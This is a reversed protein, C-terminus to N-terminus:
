QGGDVVGQGGDNEHLFSFCANIMRVNISLLLQCAPTIWFFPQAAGVVDTGLQNWKKENAIYLPIKEGGGYQGLHGANITAPGIVVLDVNKGQPTISPSSCVHYL